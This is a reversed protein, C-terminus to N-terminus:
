PRRRCGHAGHARFWAASSPRRSHAAARRPSPGASTTGAARCHGQDPRPKRGCGSAPRRGRSGQGAGGGPTTGSSSSPPATRADNLTNASFSAASPKANRSARIRSCPPVPGTSVQWRSPFIAPAIPGISIMASLRSRRLQQRLVEAHKGLVVARGPGTATAPRSPSPVAAGTRRGAGAFRPRRRTPGGTGSRPASRGRCPTRLWARVYPSRPVARRLARHGAYPGRLWVPAPTVARPDLPIM